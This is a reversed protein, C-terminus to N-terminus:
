SLYNQSQVFRDLPFGLVTGTVGACAGAVIENSLSYKQLMLRSLEPLCRTRYERVPIYSDHM